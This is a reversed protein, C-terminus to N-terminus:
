GVLVKALRHALDGDTAAREVTAAVDIELLRVDYAGRDTHDVAGLETLMTIMPSNTALVFAQLRAVGHLHASVVVATLLVRGVGRGHYEDIVAVSLEAVEDDTTSRIFRGVGIAYGDDTGVDSPRDPDFAAIAVRNHGDLDSLRELVSGSLKPMATFFRTYRSDASLHTFGAELAPTDAQDALRIRVRGGRVPLDVHPVVAAM